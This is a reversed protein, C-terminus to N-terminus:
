ANKVEQQKSQYKRIATEKLYEMSNTMDDKIFGGYIARDFNQLSSTLQNYDFLKSIEKTTYTTYPVKELKQLYKKWLSLLDELTGTTRERQFATECVDYSRIFNQYDREMLFMRYRKLIPNKFIFFGLGGIVLLICLGILLYPYNLKAPLTRYNTNAKLSDQQTIESIEQQIYVETEESYLPITDGQDIIFVPLSLKLLPDMEFTSLTYVVSDTSLTTDSYTPFYKKSIFEFPSFDFSSDPFLIEQETKHKFALTLQVPEGIKVTDKLFKANPLVFNDESIGPFSIFIFLLWFLKITATKLHSQYYM